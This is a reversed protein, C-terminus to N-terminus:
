FRVNVDWGVGGWGVGSETLRRTYRLTSSNFYLFITLLVLWTESSRSFRTLYVHMCLVVHLCRARALM